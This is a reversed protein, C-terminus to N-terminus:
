LQLEQGLLNKFSDAKWTEVKWSEFGILCFEAHVLQSSDIAKLRRMHNQSGIWTKVCNPWSAEAYHLPLSKHYEPKEKRYLDSVGTVQHWTVGSFGAWLMLLVDRWRLKPLPQELLFGDKWLLAAVDRMANYYSRQFAPPPHIHTLSLIVTCWKRQCQTM